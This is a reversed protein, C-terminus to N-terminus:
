TKEGHLEATLDISFVISAPKGDERVIKTVAYPRHFPTYDCTTLFQTFIEAAREHLNRIEPTRGFNNHETM